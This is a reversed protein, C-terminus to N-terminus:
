PIVMKQTKFVDNNILRLVYVGPTMGSTPVYRTHGGDRSVIVRGTVDVIQLTAHADAGVIIINGDSIFAFPADDSNTDERASFVLRFRSAYDSTKADFSYSPTTLLDIDTGTLNDIMHLYECGANLLDVSITYSGNRKAKFYLPYETVDEQSEAIAFDEGGERFYIEATAADMRLKPLGEGKTTKLYARDITTSGTSVGDKTLVLRVYGNAANSRSPANFSVIGASGKVFFGEMPRIPEDDADTYAVLANGDSVKYYASIANGNNRLNSIELNSTFPNGLLNFGRLRRASVSNTINATYEVASSKAQGTFNLTQDTANAYLYGQGNELRTFNNSGDKQNMWYHTPEDYYYLDYNGITWPTVSMGNKLPTAVTYWGGDESDGYGAIEKGMSFYTGETPNILQAGLGLNIRSDYTNSISETAALVKGEDVSITSGYTMTLSNVTADEDVVCQTTVIVDDNNDLLNRSPNIWNSPDSWLTGNTGVFIHPNQVNATYFTRIARVRRNEGKNSSGFAFSPTWAENENRETSSWYADDTMMVGGANIIATEVMPLAAYLKRLQGATPVFWQNNYDVQNAAYNSQGTFWGRLVRSNRRGDLDSLLDYIPDPNLNDLAMVDEGSNGWACGESDDEIAVMWGSVGSPDTYFVVGKTGDANVITSGISGPAVFNAVLARSRTFNFEYTPNYSVTMGAETWSDFVYGAEPYATVTVQQGVAFEGSGSVSVTGFNVNNPKATIANPGAAAFHRIARVRCTSTKNVNGMSFTATAADSGSYETSSWYTDETLTAGGANILAPEVMPLAAYLKRLEGVSPLYWGNAFDVLSAAYENDFGQHKRICRTNMNGSVDLLARPGNDPKNLLTLADIAEGWQCGESADELAVMLGEDGDPSMWFVVGKSGDPNCVISGVSSKAVFHAVLSRSRTFTFQYTADLSVSLGDESWHDFVYGENPTATVTVPANYAFTGNGSVSATGFHSDNASVYICNNGATVFNRIARVRCNSEKNTNGLAFAPTSVDTASFETSSWYLNDTLTTGGANQLATEVFPLASYLKRLQGVSPLYWGNEYDVLSVAYENETGQANRILSTNRFGSLDDLAIPDNYPVDQLGLINTTPGWQCGESVDDLAVMWGETGSPCLYFVVGQSGDPNTIVNGIAFETSVFTATLHRNALAQFTYTPSNCVRVGDEVWGSFVYGSNATATLMVTSGAPYSGQNGTVIGGALPNTTAAVTFNGCGVSVTESPESEGGYYNTTVYYTYVGVPVNADTFNTEQLNRAICVLHHGDNRYVNYTLNDAWKAYLDVIFHKGSGLKELYEVPTIYSTALDDNGQICDFPDQISELVEIEIIIDENGEIRIPNSLYDNYIGSANPFYQHSSLLTGSSPFSGKYVKINHLTGVMRTSIRYGISTIYRNSYQAFDSPRFVEYCVNNFRKGGVRELETDDYPSKHHSFSLVTNSPEDWSLEVSAESASVALGTPIPSEYPKTYTVCGSPLSAKSYLGGENSGITILQYSYSGGFVDNDMYATQEVEVLYKGNRLIIYSAAGSVPSWSIQLANGSTNSVTINEPASWSRDNPIIHIIAANGMNYQGEGSGTGGVGPSLEGIAYYEDNHNGRWGWNFKFLDNDDYGCCVFAHGGGSSSGRYHVPRYHNIENKLMAKWENDSYNMQRVYEAVESYDFYTVYPERSSVASSEDVGYNMNVSVGCHFMLKAVATRQVETSENSYFLTMNDWDYTTEGFNAEIPLTYNGAPEDLYYSNSNVGQVPHRWRRMIQAMATAVCGTVCHKNEDIDIPCEDNYLLYSDNGSDQGWSPLGIFMGRDGKAPITKGLKLCDWDAKIVENGVLDADMAAQIQGDYGELWWRLNEPMDETAFRNTKSYGLIPTVREDAAVLVFGSDASFIYFNQFPTEASIDEFQVLQGQGNRVNQNFFTEAVSQATERSVHQAFVRNAAAVAVALCLLRLLVRIRARM